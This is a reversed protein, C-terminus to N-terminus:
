ANINIIYNSNDDQIENDKIIETNNKKDIQDNKDQRSSKNNNQQSSMQFNEFSLKELILGNDSLSKTLISENAQLALLSANNEAKLIIRANKDNM